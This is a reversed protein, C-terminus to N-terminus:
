PKLDRYLFGKKHMQCIQFAIQIWYMYKKTTTM